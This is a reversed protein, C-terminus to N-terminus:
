SSAAVVVVVVDVVVRLLMRGSVSLLITQVIWKSVKVICETGMM